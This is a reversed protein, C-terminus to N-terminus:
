KEARKYDECTEATLIKDRYEQPTDLFLNVDYHDKLCGMLADEGPTQDSYGRDANIFLFHKCFLCLRM